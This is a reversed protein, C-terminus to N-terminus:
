FPNKAFLLSIDSAFLPTFSQFLSLISTSPTYSVGKLIINYFLTNKTIETTYKLTKTTQLDLFLLWILDFRIISCSGAYRGCFYINETADNKKIMNLLLSIMNGIGHM